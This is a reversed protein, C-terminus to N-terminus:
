ARNRARQPAGIGVPWARVAVDCVTEGIREPRGSFVARSRLLRRNVHADSVVTADIVDLPTAQRHQSAGGVAVAHSLLGDYCRMPMPAPCLSARAPTFHPRPTTPSARVEGVRSKAWLRQVRPTVGRADSWTRAKGWLQSATRGAAARAGISADLARLETICASLCAAVKACGSAYAEPVGRTEAESRLRAWVGWVQAGMERAWLGVSGPQDILVAAALLGLCLGLLSSSAPRLLFGATACLVKFGRSEEDLPEDARKMNSFDTRMRPPQVLTPLRLPQFAACRRRGIPPVGVAAAHSPVRYAWTCGALSCLLTAATALRRRMTPPQMRRKRFVLLRALACGETPLFGLLRGWGM